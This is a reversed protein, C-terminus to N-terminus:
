GHGGQLARAKRVEGDVIQAWPDGSRSAPSTKRSPEIRSPSMPGKAAPPQATTEKVLPARVSRSTWANIQPGNRESNGLM